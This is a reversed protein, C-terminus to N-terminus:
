NTKTLYFCAADGDNIKNLERSWQNFQDIQEQSFIKKESTLPIDRLYMESGSFQLEYSDYIVDSLEFGTQACLLKMSQISHIFIHRPADLQVWNTYYKRWAYSGAVPIRIIVKGNKSLVNNIKELVWAPNEMHEFAHHMMVLDYPGQVQDISKKHITIGCNYNIDKEIFPDAGNLKRFGDNYMRLLLEGKGCGLDLINSNQNLEGQKIWPYYSKYKSNVFSGLLSNGKLYSNLTKSKFSRKLSKLLSKQIFHDEGKNHYSYYNEPYYKALSEPISILQLCSCNGCELYEFEEKLGFMMERAKHVKNNSSNNCIKCVNEARM